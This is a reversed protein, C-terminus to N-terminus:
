SARRREDVFVVLELNDEGTFAEQGKKKKGLGLFAVVDGDIVNDVSDLSQQVQSLIHLSHSHVGGRTRQVSLRSWGGRDSFDIIMSVYIYGLVDELVVYALVPGLELKLAVELERYAAVNLEHKEPAGFGNSM